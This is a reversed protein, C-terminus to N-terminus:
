SHPSRPAPSPRTYQAQLRSLLGLSALYILLGALPTTFARFPLTTVTMM